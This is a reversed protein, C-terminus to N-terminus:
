SKNFEKILLISIGFLVISIPWLRYDVSFVLFFVICLGMLFLGLHFFIKGKGTSVYVSLFSVGLFGIYFPWLYKMSAWTTYSAYFALVSFQILYIGMALITPNKKEREAYLMYLGAGLLLPLVPWFHYLGNIYGYNELILLAGIIICLMALVNYRSKGLTNEM